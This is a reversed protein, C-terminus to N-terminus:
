RPVLRERGGVGPNFFAALEAKSLQDLASELENETFHYGRDAAIQIFAIPDRTAQLRSQLAQNKKVAKFFEAARHQSM